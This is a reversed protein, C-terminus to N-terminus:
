KLAATRAAGDLELISYARAQVAYLSALRNADPQAEREMPAAMMQEQKLAREADQDVLTQLERIAPDASVLCNALAPSPRMAWSFALLTCLCWAPAGPARRAVFWSNRMFVRVIDHEGPEM